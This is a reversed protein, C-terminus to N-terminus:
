AMVTKKPRDRKDINVAYTAKPKSVKKPRINMTFKAVPVKKPRASFATFSVVTLLLLCILM